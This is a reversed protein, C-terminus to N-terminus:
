EKTFGNDEAWGELTRVDFVEDPNYTSAVHALLKKEDVGELNDGAWELLPGENFVDGPSLNDQVWDVANDLPDSSLMHRAFQENQNLTM